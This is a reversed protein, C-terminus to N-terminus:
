SHLEKLKKKLSKAHNILKGLEKEEMPNLRYLRALEAITRRSPLNVGKEIKYITDNGGAIERSVDYPSNFGVEERYRRLESGIKERTQKLDHELDKRLYM